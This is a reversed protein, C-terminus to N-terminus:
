SFGPINLIDVGIFKLLLVAILLFVLGWISATFQDMGRKVQEPNGAATIMQLIGFFMLLLTAAGAFGAIFKFIGSVFAQPETPVCGIATMLGKGNPDPNGSTIDCPVGSARTCDQGPKPVCITKTGGGGGGIPGGPNSPSGIRFQYNCLPPGFLDEVTKFKASIAAPITGVVPIMSAILTPDITLERLTVTHVGETIAEKPVEIPSMDGNAQINVVGTGQGLSALIRNAQNIPLGIIPLSSDGLPFQAINLPKNDIFLYMRSGPTLRTGTIYLPSTNITLNNPPNTSLECQSLSNTVKYSVQCIERDGNPTEAIVKIPITKDAEFECPPTAQAGRNLRLIVTKTDNPQTTADKPENRFGCLFQLKWKRALTNDGVDVYFEAFPSNSRIPAPNTAQLSCSTSQADVKSPLLFLLFFLSFLIAFIKNM